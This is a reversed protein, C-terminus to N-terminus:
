KVTLPFNTADGRGANTFALFASWSGAMQPEVMTRYRGPTSTPFVKGISHMVMGPMSLSLEFTVAGVNTLQGQADRFDIYLDNGVPHLTDGQTFLNVTLGALKETDFPNSSIVRQPPPLHAARRYILFGVIGLAALVPLAFFLGISRRVL